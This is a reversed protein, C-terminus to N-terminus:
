RLDIEIHIKDIDLYMEVFVFLYSIHQYCENFSIERNEYSGILGSMDKKINHLISSVTTNHGEIAKEIQKGVASVIDNLESVIREQEEKEIAANKGDYNIISIPNREVYAGENRARM